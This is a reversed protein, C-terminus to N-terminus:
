PQQSCTSDEKKKWSWRKGKTAHGSRYRRIRGKNDPNEFTQGCGCACAVLARPFRQRRRGEHMRQASATREEPTMEARHHRAHESSDLLELNSLRNDGRDGNIHHVHERSDLPRGVHSAMVLRHELIYGKPTCRPYRPCHVIIYGDPRRVRTGWTSPDMWAISTGQM